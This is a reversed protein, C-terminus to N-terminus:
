QWKAVVRGTLDFYQGFKDGSSAELISASSHRLPIKKTFNKTSPAVKVSVKAGSQGAPPRTETITDIIGSVELQPPSLLELTNVDLYVKHVEIPAYRANYTRIARLLEPTNAAFSLDVRVSNFGTSQTVEGVSILGGAAIYMRRGGFFTTDVDGTWFGATHLSGTAREQVTTWVLLRTFIDRNKLYNKLITPIARM